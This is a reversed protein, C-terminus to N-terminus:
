PFYIHRDLTDPICLAPTRVLQLVRRRAVNFGSASDEESGRPLHCARSTTVVIIGELFGRLSGRRGGDACGLFTRWSGGAQGVDGKRM